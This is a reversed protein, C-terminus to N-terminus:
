SEIREGSSLNMHQGPGTCIIREFKWAGYSISLKTNWAGSSIYLKTDEQSIKPQDFFIKM